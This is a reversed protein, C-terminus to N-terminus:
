SEYELLEDLNDHEGDDQTSNVDGAQADIISRYFPHANQPMLALLSQLDRVKEPRLAIPSTYKQPLPQTSLDFLQHSWAARGKQLRVKIINNDDPEYDSKVLYGTESPPAQHGENPSTSTNEDNDNKLRKVFDQAARAEKLHEDLKAQQALKEGDTTANTITMNITDCTTCTDVKPPAFSINFDKRFVDSYYHFTVRSEQPYTQAMWSLYMDYLKRITLTSDLYLRNPAKARSYHSTMAPLLRIHEKVHEAREGVIKNAPTHRGRQDPVPVSTHTMKRLANDIRRKSIGHMAMFGSFCVKTTVNNYTVQYARSISRRSVEAATRKRAIPMIAVMKQIYANQLNYDGIAWFASFIAQVGPMTVKSFCGDRCAAGIVRQPMARHSAPSTYPEGKNRKEKAVARKHRAPTRQRKRGQSLRVHPPRHHTNNNNDNVTNDNCCCSASLSVANKRATVDDTVRHRGQASPSSQNTPATDFGPQELIARHHDGGHAAIETSDSIAPIHCQVSTPQSTQILQPKAPPSRFAAFHTHTLPTRARYPRSAGHTVASRSGGPQYM